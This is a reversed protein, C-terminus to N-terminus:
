SGVLHWGGLSTTEHAATQREEDQGHAQDGPQEGAGGQGVAVGGALGGLDAALQGGLGM